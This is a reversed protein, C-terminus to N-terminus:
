TKSDLEKKLFRIQELKACSFHQCKYSLSRPSFAQTVRTSSFKEKNM